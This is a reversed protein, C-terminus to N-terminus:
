NACTDGLLVRVLIDSRIRKSHYAMYLGYDSVPDFLLSMKSFRGHCNMKVLIALLVKAQGLERSQDEQVRVDDLIQM